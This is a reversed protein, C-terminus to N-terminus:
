SVLLVGPSAKGPEIETCSASNRAWSQAGDRHEAESEKAIARAQEESEAFILMTNVLDPTTYDIFEKQILQYLKM